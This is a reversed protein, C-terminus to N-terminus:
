DSASADLRKSDFGGSFQPANDSIEDWPAKSEVFIHVAYGRTGHDDDLLGAPVFFIGVEKGDIPLPSGCTKCFSSHWGNGDPVHYTAILQEGGTWQFNDRAAHFVSNGNTGSVKRCKSCHCQGIPGPEGAISFKVGGCLCSGTITM